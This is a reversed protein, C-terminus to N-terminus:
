NMLKKEIQTSVIDSLRLIIEWIILIAASRQSYNLKKNMGNM